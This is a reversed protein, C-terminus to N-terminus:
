RAGPPDLVPSATAVAEPPDITPMPLSEPPLTRSDAAHHPMMPKLGGYPSTGVVPWKGRTPSRWSPRVWIPGSARLRSSTESTIDIMEPGPSNPIGGTASAQASTAGTRPAVNLTIVSSGPRPLGIVIDRRADLSAPVREM